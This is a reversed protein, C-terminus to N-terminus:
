DSPWNRSGILNVKPVRLNSNPNDSSPNPSFSADSKSGPLLKRIEERYEYIIYGVIAGILGIILYNPQNSKNSQSTKTPQSGSQNTGIQNTDQSYNLPQNFPQSTSNLNSALSGDEGTPSSTKYENLGISQDSSSQDSQSGSSNSGSSSKASNDSTQTAEISVPLANPQSPTPTELWQWGTESWGWSADTQANQYSTQDVITGTPDLLSITEQDNNLSLKSTDKGIALYQGPDIVVKDFTYAKESQDVIQWGELFVPHDFLNKIEVFEQNGDSPKGVIESLVIPPYIISQAYVQAVSIFKINTFIIFILTCILRQM